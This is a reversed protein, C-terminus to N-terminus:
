AFLYEIGLPTIQTNELKGIFIGNNDFKEATLGEIFGQKYMNTIIYKWYRENLGDGFFPSDKKLYRVEIDRGKKLCQYLYSLIRCVVVFYDDKTM